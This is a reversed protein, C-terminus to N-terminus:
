NNNTKQDDPIVPCNDLEDKLTKMKELQEAIEVLAFRKNDGLFDSKKVIQKLLELLSLTIEILKYGEQKVQESMPLRAFVVASFQNLLENREDFFDIICDHFFSLQDQALDVKVM